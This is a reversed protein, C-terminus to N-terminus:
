ECKIRFNYPIYLIPINHEQAYKIEAAIGYSNDWGPMQYVWLEDARELFTLCLGMWFEQDTTMSKFGVLTHGYTIPAFVVYGKSVCDAALESVQNFNETMVDWDPHNYPSALYIFKGKEIKTIMTMMKM